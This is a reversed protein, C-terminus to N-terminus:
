LRFPEIVEGKPGIVISNYKRNLPPYINRDFNIAKFKAPMDMGQELQVKVSFQDIM